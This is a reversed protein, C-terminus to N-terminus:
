KSSLDLQWCRAVPYDTYYEMQRCMPAYHLVQM